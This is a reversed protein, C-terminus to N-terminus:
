VYNKNEISSIFEEIDKIGTKKRINSRHKYLTHISIFLKAATEKLNKIKYLKKLVIVECKTLSYKEIISNPIILENPKIKDNRYRILTEKLEDLDVPKVLYDFAASKIAKIAYQNYATVFIFTPNTGKSRIETVVDFGSKRPMEVDIFVIDPNTKIVLEIANDPNTTFDICDVDEIKKLLSLMRECAVKEDDVVVCQIKKM